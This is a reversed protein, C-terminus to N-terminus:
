FRTLAEIRLGLCQAAGPAAAVRRIESHAGTMFAELPELNLTEPSVTEPKLTEPNLTEPSLNKKKIEKKRSCVLDWCSPWEALLTPGNM